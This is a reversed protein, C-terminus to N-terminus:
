YFLPWKDIVMQPRLNLLCSLRVASLRDLRPRSPRHYQRIKDAQGDRDVVPTM